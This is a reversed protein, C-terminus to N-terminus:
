YSGRLRRNGTRLVATVASGRVKRSASPRKAEPTQTTVVTPSSPRDAPTVMLENAESDSSGGNTSNQM